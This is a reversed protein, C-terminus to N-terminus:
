RKMIKSPAEEAESESESGQDLLETMEDGSSEDDEDQPSPVSKGAECESSFLVSTLRQKLYVSHKVQSYVDCIDTERKQMGGEKPLVKHTRLDFVRLVRDLGVSAM